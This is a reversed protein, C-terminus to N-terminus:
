SGELTAVKAELAEVKASLEKIAEIFYASLGTYNVTKLAVGGNIDTSPLSNVLDPIIPELEQAIVGASKSDDDKFTFTRGTLQKVTNLAGNVTTIDKKVSVDSLPNYNGNALVQAKETGANNRFVWVTTTGANQFYMHGAYVQIKGNTAEGTWTGSNSWRIDRSVLIGEGTTRMTESGNYYLTVAANHSCHVMWENNVDNYIGTTVSGDHMFTARGDISYGEWNGKGSGNVQVTGYDGTPESLYRSNVDFYIRGNSGDLFIRSNGDSAVYMGWGAGSPTFSANGHSFGIGYMNGLAADSPNYSSGITYIPSSKADTAAINNQGGEM